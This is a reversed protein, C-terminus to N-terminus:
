RPPSAHAPGRFIANAFLVNLGDMYARTNPDQTFTILWGNGEPEAVVFPKLALQKKTDEWLYGSAMLEKPEAFSVVNTGNDRKVPTFISSGTMLVNLQPKLGAALWHDADPTAHVLVGPSSDPSEDAPTEAADLQKRDTLVTGPVTSKEDPKAAESKERFANERRISSLNMKPDAVFSAAGDIAILVGGRNMWDHLAKAGNEGLVGGYGGGDPLILVDFQSLGGNSLNATRIPTVPYGFQREIVFRTNGAATAGTPRDWAIAINPARHTVVRDSGFSPGNTVWSDAVGTIEAATTGALRSLKASLDPTGAARFILSGAPFTRGSVTFANDASTVPVGERLAATLLRIAATSGWPAVFFPSNPNALTATPKFDKTVLESPGSPEDACSDTTVNYQLPLSWATVDYLEPSLDKARRREQEKMFTEDLPVHPELLTHALRGAPQALSISYSGEPYTKRCAKISGTARKVEIGQAAIVSALKDATSQDAQPPIVYSKTKGQKGEDIASARYNYFDRLLRERNQSVTELTAVSSLFHKRVTQQYTLDEGDARRALLGDSGANEYTTGISGHFLPWGAGYGPYFDDYVERNFYPLGANDFWKANNRGIIQLAARQSQTIDPNYPDAEPSFYYTSDAGMEHLDVFVLPFWDQFIAVRAQTEPQTLAFWDRNMDFLYSNFRGGPWPQSRDASIPSGSPELGLTDYYFNVFRDRGDPNQVPDIFVLENSLVANVTADNRAALLHYATMMASDSSSIEDGHVGHALWTSGPLRAIIADAQAKTTKRPDALAKMDASFGARASINAQSGIIVYVLERGQWSKAYPVVVIRGPAAKELERFYRIVDASPTVRDGSRKGLVQEVTPIVPDYTVGPIFQQAAAPLAAAGILALAAIASITTRLSM